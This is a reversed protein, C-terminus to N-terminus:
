QPLYNKAQLIKKYSWKNVVVGQKLLYLSPNTRAATRIATFDCEFIQLNSFSTKQLAIAAENLSATVIYAPINKQSAIRILEEFDKEWDKVPTSFNECFLLLCYPQSLIISTSDNRKEKGTTSDIFEKGSLSFGKIPPEANGKRILKDIRDKFTYTNLDAPLETASFEFEKGGKEYVFRIAFSDQVSGRPPKMKESIDNGKKFPLCDVLPLYNLVYWQLGFSFVTVATMIGFNTNASFYPRINRRYKFLFIILGTLAIDKLFSTKPTIPICDGFCGCNTFKGSYYAYGTLFTFFLILLLLLRSFVKMRWGLLLAVGALIEFAIMFVSLSLSHDHLFQFLNILIDKLFFSGQELGENWKEFFEKMKYSLGLPDNAKVLGSFIFLTGVIIRVITIALKL